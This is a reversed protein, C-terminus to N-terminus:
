FTTSQVWGIMQRLGSEKSTRPRWHILEAAKRTNAVFVKQDSPRPPMKAVAVRVDLETGLFALLELISLSNAMGGGINFAQGCIKDMGDVASFYCEVLDPAYLIDRVQKGNGAIAIPGKVTGRKIGVAQQIFWGVWGQDSTAFQRGGFCSSHRLVVTRLNFTRAYDLVYQDAAGKSCGYPSRFDLPLSEDFGAPYDPTTYLTAQEVFRVGALDGYVKNTSSYVVVADPALQRVAELLNHTGLANTQFDLRPNSISTTMAVQGATHFIVDPRTEGLVRRLDNYVRVDAHHVVLRDMSQLWRLNEVSGHRRFSDLVAVSHSRRLGEAALNAGIFGCGGTVLLRWSM